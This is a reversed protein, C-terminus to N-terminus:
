EKDDKFYVNKLRCLVQQCGLPSFKVFSLTLNTCVKNPSFDQNKQNAYYHHTITMLATNSYHTSSPLPSFYHYHLFM